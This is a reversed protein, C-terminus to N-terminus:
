SLSQPLGESKPQEATDQKLVLSRKKNLMKPM